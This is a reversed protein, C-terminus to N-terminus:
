VNERSGAAAHTMKVGPPRGDEGDERARKRAAVGERRGCGGLVFGRKGKAEEGQVLRM